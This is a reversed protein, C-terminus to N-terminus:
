FDFSVGLRILQGTEHSALSGGYDLTFALGSFMRLDGGISLDVRNASSMPDVLAQFTGASSINAFGLSANGANEFDHAFEIRGRPTLTGFDLPYSYAARLGLVTSFTTVSQNAYSLASTANGTETFSGLSSSSAELRGYPSLRFVDKAYEYGGTLSGFIQDGSRHGLDFANFDSVFRKSDFSLTGGSVIGDIYTDVTPRFSGYLAVNGGSATSQSGNQDIDSADHDYGIGLGMLLQDGFKYDGGASVGITTHGFGLREASSNRAGLDVAGGTWLGFDSPMIPAGGSAGTTRGTKGDGAVPPMTPNDKNRPDSALPQSGSTLSIDNNFLGTSGDHLSDLRRGINGIQTHAFREAAEVQADLLGLVTPDKSPDPQGAVLVLVDVPVTQAAANTLAVSIQAIGRFSPAPTFSLQFQHGAAAAFASNIGIAEAFLHGVGLSAHSVGLDILTATGANPPSVGIIAASVFSGSAIASVNVSTQAGPATTVTKTGGFASATGVAGVTVTATGPQSAGFNNSVTYTFSDSGTFGNAPKYIIQQGSVATTGHNPASAAAVATFPTGTANATVNLEVATGTTTTVALATVTPVPQATVTIGVTGPASTGGPNTAAYTFSDAGGFFNSSPTYTVIEGSVTATGHGPAAVIAIGTVGVGTISGSLDIHIATDFPTTVNKAAVTPAAPVGVTISVTAPTSAGASNTATYTFSDNGGFFNSSPTYTVIEGSITATGHGPAAVIAIGTVGIGTISTSLDIHTATNFPTTVNKAAATPAAPMGVTISVTAPTSTGASNTATYTFSDAGGVFSSSPTYTVIEGAVSATGHAPAVAVTVATIAAGAISGSLDIHAVTNFATTVSKAAVTPVTVATPTVAASAASAPGTGVSNTAAVTFTYATGNALGTVTIPSGTGTVTVPSGGGTATVTYQTIAAGGNSAPANFTIAAQANGAAASVGTPAGPVTAPAMPTVATSASSAPGTGVANIAAVTFTYATGNTLGTVTIPSSAGSAPVSSGGGTATVTYGTIPSNGTVTPATFAVIARANGATPTVAAPVGPVGQVQFDMVLSDPLGHIAGDQGVNNQSVIAVDPGSYGATPTYTVTIVPGSINFSLSGHRPAVNITHLWGTADPTTTGSLFCGSFDITKSSTNTVKDGTTCGSINGDCNGGDSTDGAGDEGCPPTALAISPIMVICIILVAWLHRVISRLM